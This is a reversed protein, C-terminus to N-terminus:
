ARLLQMRHLLSFLDFAQADSERVIREEIARRGAPAVGHTTYRFDTTRAAIEWSPGLAGAAQEFGVFEQAAPFAQRLCAVAAHFAPAGGALRDSQFRFIVPLRGLHLDAVEIAEARLTERQPNAGPGFARVERGERSERCHITGRVLCLVEDPALSEVKGGALMIRVGPPVEEIESVVVPHFQFFARESLRFARLELARMWGVWRDAERRSEERRLIRPAPAILRQRATYADLGLGEAFARVEAEEPLRRQTALVVFHGVERAEHATAAVLRAYAEPPLSARFRDADLFGSDPSM